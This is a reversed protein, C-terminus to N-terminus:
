IFRYAWGPIVFRRKNLIGGLTKAGDQTLQSKLEVLVEWRTRCAETVIIVWDVQSSIVRTQSSRLAPASDVLILDYAAATETLFRRFRGLDFPSAANHGSKGITIVDLNPWGSGSIVKELPTESLLYNLVGPDSPLGFTRHLSPNSLNTDVLLFRQDLFDNALVVALNQAVTSTGVGPEAGTILFHKCAGEKRKQGIKSKVMRLSELIGQHREPFAMWLSPKSVDNGAPKSSKGPPASAKSRPMKIDNDDPM